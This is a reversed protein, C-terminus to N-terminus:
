GVHIRLNQHREDDGEAINAPVSSRLVDLKTEVAQVCDDAVIMYRLLAQKGKNAQNTAHDVPFFMAGLCPSDGLVKHSRVQSM